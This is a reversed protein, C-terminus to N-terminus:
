ISYFDGKILAEDIGDLLLKIDDRDNQTLDVKDDEKKPKPEVIDQITLEGKKLQDSISPYRMSFILFRVTKDDEGYKELNGEVVLTQRTVEFQNVFRKMQRPNEPVGQELFKRLYKEINEEFEQKQEALQQETELNLTNIEREYDRNREKLPTKKKPEEQSSSAEDQTKSEEHGILNDWYLKLYKPNPKPVNLSLQFTKQLFKDGISCGDNTLKDFSKYKETFCNSVWQGDAAIIYLVRVDKFLNQIGELLDVTADVNCRDLDDIFIALNNETAIQNFRKRIPEFPHETFQQKLEEQSVSKFFFNNILGTIAGIFTGVLGILSTYFGIDYNTGDTSEDGISTSFYYASVGFVGLLMLALIKHKYQLKFKWFRHSTFEGPLSKESAHKSIKNILIWWPDSFKQNEWANYRIVEWGSTRLHKEFFNLMSSKGSGWEGNLLVTYPDNYKTFLENISQTVSKALNERGLEDAKTASDPWLFASKDTKLSAELIPEFFLVDPRNSYFYVPISGDLPRKLLFFHGKEERVNSKFHYEKLKDLKPQTLCIQKDSLSVFSHVVLLDRPEFSPHNEQLLHVNFNEQDKLKKPPDYGEVGNSYYYYDKSKSYYGKLVTSGYISRSFGYGILGQLELGEKKLLNDDIQTSLAFRMEKIEQGKEIATIFEPSSQDIISSSEETVKKKGSAEKHPDFEGQVFRRVENNGYALLHKIISDKNQTYYERGAPSVKCIYEYIDDETLEILNISKLKKLLDEIPEWGVFLSRPIDLSVIGEYGEDYIIKLLLYEAVRLEKKLGDPPEAFDRKASEFSFSEFLSTNDQYYLIGDFSIKIHMQERRGTSIVVLKKRELHQVWFRIKNTTVGNYRNGIIDGANHFGNNDRENLRYLYWILYLEEKEFESKEM